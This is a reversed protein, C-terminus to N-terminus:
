NRGGRPKQSPYAKAEKEVVNVIKAYKLVGNDRYSIGAESPSLSFPFVDKQVPPTNVAEDEVNDSMVLDQNNGLDTRFRAVYNDSARMLKGVSQRFYVNELVVDAELVEIDLYFEIGSGGQVMGAVYTNYYASSSAFAPQSLVMTEQTDSVATSKCQTLLLSSFGISLLAVLKYMKMIPQKSNINLVRAM